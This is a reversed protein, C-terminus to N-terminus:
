PDTAFGTELAAEVSDESFGKAVLYRATAPGRGRRGVIASARLPEPELNSVADEIEEPELGKRRLDHRIGADGYGRNALATARGQAVRRDDLVGVRALM